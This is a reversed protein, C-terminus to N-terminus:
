RVLRATDWLLITSDMQGSALMRGDPAFALAEVRHELEPSRWREKGTAADLLVLDRTGAAALLRGDPTFALPGVGFYRDLDIAFREKGTQTDFVRVKFNGRTFQVANPIASFARVALSRGDRSFVFAREPTDPASFTRVEKGTDVAILALDRDARRAVTKGDPAFTQESYGAHNEPRRLLPKATAFDFVNVVEPEERRFGKSVCLLRQGDASVALTRVQERGKLAFRRLEAGTDDWLRVTGDSAGTVFGGPAPRLHQVSVQPAEHWTLKKLTTHTQLNWLRHDSGPFTLAALRKGDASFALERIGGLHGDFDHRPRGTALDFLTLAAGTLQLGTKGDPSVRDVWGPGPLPPLPKGTAVNWRHAKGQHDVAILEKGGPMVRARSVRGALKAVARTQKGTTVDWLAIVGESFFGGGPRKASRNAAILLTKGDPLLQFAALDRWTENGFTRKSKGSELDGVHVTGQFASASVTTRNDPCILIRGVEREHWNLQRREKGTAVDFVRLQPDLTNGGIVLTKGNPAFALATARPFRTDMPLTHLLRRRDLSWLAAGGQSGAVAATKGNPSVAMVSLEGALATLVHLQKGTDVDWFRLKGDGGGTVITRGGPLFEASRTFPNGHRFRVTGLRAVAGAPLPDGYRDAPPGQATAPVALLAVCLLVLSRTTFM